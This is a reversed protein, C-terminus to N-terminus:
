EEVIMNGDNDARCEQWVKMIPQYNMRQQRKVHEILLPKDDFVKATLLEGGKTHTSVIVPRM